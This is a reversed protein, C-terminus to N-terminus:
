DINFEKLLLKYEFDKRPYVGGSRFYLYKLFKRPVKEISAKHGSYLPNWMGCLKM